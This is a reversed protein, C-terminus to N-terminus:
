SGLKMTRCVNLRESTKVNVFLSVFLCVSAASFM